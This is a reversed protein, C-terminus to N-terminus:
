NPSHGACSTSTKFASTSQLSQNLPHILITLIFFTSLKSKIEYASSVAAREKAYDESSVTDFTDFAVEKNEELGKEGFQVNREEDMM